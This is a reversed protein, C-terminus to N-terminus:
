TAPVPSPLYGSEFTFLVYVTMVSFAVLFPLCFKFVSISMGPHLFFPTSSFYLTSLSPCDLSIYVLLFFNWKEKRNKM